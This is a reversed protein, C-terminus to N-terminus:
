AYTSNNGQLGDVVVQVSEEAVCIRRTQHLGASGSASGYEGVIREGVM